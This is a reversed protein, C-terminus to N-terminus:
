GDKKKVDGEKPQSSIELQAELSAIKAEASTQNIGQQEHLKKVQIEQEKMISNWVAKSYKKRENKEHNRASWKPVGCKRDHKKKHRPM